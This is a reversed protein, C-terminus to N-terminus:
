LGTVDPLFAIGRITGNDFVHFGWDCKHSITVCLPTLFLFITDMRILENMKNKGTTSIHFAKRLQVILNPIGWSLVARQNSDTEYM